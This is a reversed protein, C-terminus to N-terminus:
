TVLVLSHLSLSLFSLSLSLSLHKTKGGGQSNWVGIEEELVGSGEGQPGRFMKDVQRSVSERMRLPVHFM